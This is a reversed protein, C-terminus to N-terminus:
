NTEEEVRALVKVRKQEPEMAENAPQSRPSQSPTQSSPHSRSATSPHSRSAEVADPEIPSEEISPHSRPAEIPSPVLQAPAPEPDPDDVPPAAIGPVPEAPAQEPPALAIGPVPEALPAAHSPLRPVLEEPSSRSTVVVELPDEM